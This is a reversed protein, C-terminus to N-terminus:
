LSRNICSFKVPQEEQFPYIPEIYFPVFLNSVSHLVLGELVMEYIWKFEQRKVYEIRVKAPVFFRAIIIPPLFQHCYSIRLMFAGPPYRPYSM